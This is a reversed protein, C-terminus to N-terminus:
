TSRDEYRIFRGSNNNPMLTGDLAHDALRRPGHFIALHRDPYEHVTGARELLGVFDQLHKDDVVAGVLVDGRRDPFDAIRPDPHDPM